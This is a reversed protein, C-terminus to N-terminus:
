VIRAKVSSSHSVTCTARVAECKAMVMSVHARLVREISHPAVAIAMGRYHYLADKAFRSDQLELSLELLALMLKEHDASWVRNKRASFFGHLTRLAEDPQGVKQFEALPESRLADSIV